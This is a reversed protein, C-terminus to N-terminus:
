VEIWRGKRDRCATRSQIMERGLVLFTIEYDRCWIGRDTKFTRTAELTGEYSDGDASGIEWNTVQRSASTELIQQVQQKLGRRVDEPIEGLSMGWSVLEVRRKRGRPYYIDEQLVIHGVDPSYYYDRYLSARTGIRRLCAIKVADFEGSKLTLKMEGEAVCAWRQAFYTRETKKRSDHITYRVLNKVDRGTDLPWIWAPSRLYEMTATRDEFQWYDWPITFDRNRVYKLGRNTRWFIYDGEVQDVYETRRNDYTFYQGKVYRPLPIDLTEAPKPSYGVMQCGTLYVLVAMLCGVARYGAGYRALCGM